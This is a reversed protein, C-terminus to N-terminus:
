NYLVNYVKNKIKKKAKIINLTKFNVELNVLHSFVSLNTKELNNEGLDLCTLTKPNLKQYDFCILHNNEAYISELINSPFM